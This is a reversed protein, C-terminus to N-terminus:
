PDTLNYGPPAASVRAVNSVAEGGRPLM